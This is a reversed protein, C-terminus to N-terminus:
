KKFFVQLLLNLNQFDASHGRQQAFTLEFDVIRPASFHSHRKEQEETWVFRFLYVELRDPHQTIENCLGHPVNAPGTRTHSIRRYGLIEEIWRTRGNQTL